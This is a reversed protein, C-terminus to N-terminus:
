LLNHLCFYIVQLICTTTSSNERLSAPNMRLPSLITGGLLKCYWKKSIFYSPCGPITFSFLLAFDEYQHGSMSMSVSLNTLSLSNHAQESLACDIKQGDRTGQPYSIGLSNTPLNSYLYGLAWKRHIYPTGLCTITRM